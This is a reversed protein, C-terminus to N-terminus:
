VQYRLIPTSYTTVYQHIETSRHCIPPASPHLIHPHPPHDLFSDVITPRPSPLVYCYRCISTRYYDRVSIPFGGGLLKTVSGSSTTPCCVCVCLFILPAGTVNVLHTFTFSPISMILYTSQLTVLLFLIWSWFYITFVTYLM